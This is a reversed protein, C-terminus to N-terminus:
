TWAPAGCLEGIREGLEAPDLSESVLGAETVGRPMGYVACSEASQALITGGRAAIERAGSLGDRGMGTLVVALLAPGYAQSLSEFMPDLSPLCHSASREHTLAISVNKEAGTAILNGDGPAIYIKGPVVQMGAEAIVAERDAAVQLQGAFVTMFSPPLHQTVFIPVDVRAPLAKFLTSLAHIGGTSAGLALAAPRVRKAPKPPRAPPPVDMELPAQNGLARLRSLFDRRYSDNYQGTRPKELTDAAGMALAQVTVKAGRATLSSVVMIQAEPAIEILKPLAALGGMGPMELDLVIVDVTHTELIELAVEASAATAVTIIDPEPEVIRCVASRVTISDDVVLLRILARGKAPGRAAPSSIPSGM